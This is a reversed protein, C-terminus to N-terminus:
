FPCVKEVIKIPVIKHIKVKSASVRHLRALRAQVWEERDGELDVPIELQHGRSFLKGKLQYVAGCRQYELVTSV